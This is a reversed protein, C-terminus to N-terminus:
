RKRTGATSRDSSTGDVFGSRAIRELLASSSIKAKPPYSTIGSGAPSDLFGRRSTGNASIMVITMTVSMKVSTCITASPVSGDRVADFVGSASAENRTM